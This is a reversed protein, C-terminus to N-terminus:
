QPQPAGILRQGALYALVARLFDAHGATGPKTFGHDGPIEGYSVPGGLRTVLKRTNAPTVTADATGQLVLAPSPVRPALRYATAGLRRVDDLVRTPLRMQEKVFTQVGPDDLDVGPMVRGLEARVEPQSFDAKAFPAVSPMVYKLVALLSFLPSGLTWFPALLVLADPPDDAALQLALAGGMSFGVLVCREYDRRLARWAHRAADLWQAAGTEGLRAIEPGFGPLLLGQAVLGAAALQEGLPRLEAPTGPFGHILLTAHRGHGLVFPQHEPEAYFTIEVMDTM